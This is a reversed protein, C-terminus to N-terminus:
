RVEQNCSVDCKVGADGGQKMLKIQASIGWMQDPGFCTLDIWQAGEYWIGQWAYKRNTVRAALGGDVGVTTSLDSAQSTGYREWFQATGRGVDSNVIFESCDRPLPSISVDDIILSHDGLIYEFHFKVMDANESLSTADFIGRMTSWGATGPSDLARAIKDLHEVQKGGNYSRLDMEPCWPSESIANCAVGNGGADVLRYKAQAVYRDGPSWAYSTRSKKPRVIGTKMKLTKVWAEVEHKKGARLSLCRTDLYQSIVDYDHSADRLDGFANSGDIGVGKVVKIGGAKHLLHLEETNSLTKQEEMRSLIPAICLFWM